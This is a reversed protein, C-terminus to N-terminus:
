QGSGQISQGASGASLGTVAARQLRDTLAQPVQVTPRSATSAGQQAARTAARAPQSQVFNALPEAVLGLKFSGLSRVIRALREAAFAAGTLGTPPPKGQPGQILRAAKGITQLQALEDPEFLIKARGTALVKELERNYTALNFQRESGSSAKQYLDDLVQGRVQSWAAPDNRQYFNKLTRLQKNDVRPGNVFKQMFFDPEIDGDSVAKLAPVAELEKFRAAAAKNAARLATLARADGSAAVADDLSQNLERKFITIAEMAAGDNASRAKGYYNNAAKLIEEARSITIPPADPQQVARMVTALDEPLGTLIAKRELEPLVRNALDEAPIPQDRGAANRAIDYLRDVRGKIQEARKLVPAMAVAGAAERDLAPAARAAINRLATNLEEFQQNRQVALAEGEPSAALFQERGFQTPNQTEQALTPRSVGAQRLTARNALATADLETAGKGAKQVEARITDKVADDLSAWDVGESRVAAAIAADLQAPDPATKLTSRLAQVSKLAANGILKLGALGIPTAIAGVTAGTAIQGLKAEGYDQGQSVDVPAIAGQAAGQIGGALAARAITTPAGGIAALPATVAANGILRAMDFGPTQESLSEARQIAGAAAQNVGQRVNGPVPLLNGALQMMGAASESAGAALRQGFGPPELAQQGGGARIAAVRDKLSQDDPPVNDPINQITIGDKTTISYPM